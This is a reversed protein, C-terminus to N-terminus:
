DGEDSEEIPYEGGYSRKEFDLPPPTFPSGVPPDPAPTTEPSPTSSEESM